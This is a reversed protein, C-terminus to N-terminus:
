MEQEISASSQGTNLTKAEEDDEYYIDNVVDM